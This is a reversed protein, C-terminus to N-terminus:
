HHFTLKRAEEAAPGRGAWSSATRTDWGYREAAWRTRARMWAGLQYYRVARPPLGEPFSDSTRQVSWSWEDPVFRRLPEPFGDPVM